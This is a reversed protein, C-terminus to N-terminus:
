LDNLKINQNLKDKAKTSIEINGNGQSCQLSGYCLKLNFLSFFFIVPPYLKSIQCGLNGLLNNQKQKNM